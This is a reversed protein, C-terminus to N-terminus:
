QKQHEGVISQKTKVFGADGYNDIIDCFIIASTDLKMIGIVTITYFIVKM